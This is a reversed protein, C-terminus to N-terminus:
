DIVGTTRSVTVLGNRQVVVRCGEHTFTLRDHGHHHPEDPRLVRELADPDVTEWLPTVTGAEAGTLALIVLVITYSLSATSGWDHWYRYTGTAPDFSAAETDLPDTRTM